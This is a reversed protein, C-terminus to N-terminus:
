VSNISSQRIILEPEITIYKPEIVEDAELKKEVLRVLEEVAISGLENQNQNVTSLPPSYFESEQLGDFGIIALDDPIKMGQDSAARLISLAM